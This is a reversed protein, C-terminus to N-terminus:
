DMHHDRPHIAHLGRNAARQPSDNPDAVGLFPLFHIYYPLGWQGLDDGAARDPHLVRFNGGQPHGKIGLTCSAAGCTLRWRGLMHCRTGRHGKAVACLSGESKFCHGLAPLPQGELLSRPKTQGPCERERRCEGKRTELDATQVITFPRGRDLPGM